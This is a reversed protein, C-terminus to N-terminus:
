SELLELWLYYAAMIVKAMKYSSSPEWNDEYETQFKKALETNYPKSLKYAEELSYILVAHDLISLAQYGAQVSVLEPTDEDNKSIGLAGLARSLKKKLSSNIFHSTYSPM